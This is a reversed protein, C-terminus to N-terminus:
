EETEEHLKKAYDAIASEYDMGLLEGFIGVLCTTVISDGAQHYITSKRQGIAKCAEYDKKEFGMLRMCEGETVKRIRLRNQMKDLEKNVAVKVEFYGGSPTTITPCIGDESYVRRRVDHTNLHEKSIMGLCILKKNKKKPKGNYEVVVGIDHDCFTTITRSVGHTVPSHVNGSKMFTIGISDGVYAKQYGSERNCKIKIFRKTPKDVIIQVQHGITGQGHALITPSVGKTSYVNDAQTFGYKHLNGALIIKKNKMNKSIRPGNTQFSTVRM